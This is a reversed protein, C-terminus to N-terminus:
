ADLTAALGFQAGPVRLSRARTAVRSCTIARLGDQGDSRNSDSATDPELSVRAATITLSAQLSARAADSAAASGSEITRVAYAILASSWNPADAAQFCCRRPAAATLNDHM